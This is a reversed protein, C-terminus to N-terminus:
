DISYPVTLNMTVGGQDKLELMAISRKGLAFTPDGEALYSIDVSSQSPIEVVVIRKGKKENIEVFLPYRKYDSDLLWGEIFIKAPYNTSNEVMLESYLYRSGTEELIRSTVLKISLATLPSFRTVSLVPQEASKAHENNISVPTKSLSSCASLVTLYFVGWFLWSTKKIIMLGGTSQM